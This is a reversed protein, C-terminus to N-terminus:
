LRQLWTRLQLSLTVRPAIAKQGTLNLIANLENVNDQLFKQCKEIMQKKLRAVLQLLEKSTMDETTKHPKLDQKIDPDGLLKDAHERLVLISGEGSLEKLFSLVEADTKILSGLNSEVASVASRASTELVVKDKELESKDLLTTLDIVSKQLTVNANWHEEMLSNFSESIEGLSPREPLLSIDKSSLQSSRPSQQM